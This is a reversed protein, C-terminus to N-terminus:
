LKMMVSYLIIFIVIIIVYPLFSLWWPIAKEPKIDFAQLNKNANEGVYYDSLNDVFHGLSQLQYGVKAKQNIIKGEGDVSLSGDENPIYVTMTLYYSEDIVFDVVLDDEFYEVVESYIAEEHENAGFMVTLLIIVAIFLIIYFVIIKLNNKKM